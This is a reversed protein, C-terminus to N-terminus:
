VCCICNVYSNFRQFFCSKTCYAVFTFSTASYTNNYLKATRYLTQPTCITAHMCCAYRVCAYSAHQIVYASHITRSYYCIFECCVRKWEKAKHWLSNCYYYQLLFLRCNGSCKSNTDKTMANFPSKRSTTFSRVYSFSNSARAGLCMCVCACKYTTYTVLDNGHGIEREREQEWYNSFHLLSYADLRRVACVTYANTGILVVPQSVWNASQNRDSNLNQWKAIHTCQATLTFNHALITSKM